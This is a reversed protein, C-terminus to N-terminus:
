FSSQLVMSYHFSITWKLASVLRDAVVVCSPLFTDVANSEYVLIVCM